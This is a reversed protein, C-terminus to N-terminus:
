YKHEKESLFNLYQECLWCIRKSVDIKTPAVTLGLKDADLALTLECHDSTTVTANDTTEVLSILTNPKRM